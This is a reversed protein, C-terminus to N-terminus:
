RRRAGGSVAFGDIVWGIAHAHGWVVAAVVGWTLAIPMDRELWGAHLGPLAALGAAVGGCRRVGDALRRLRGPDVM